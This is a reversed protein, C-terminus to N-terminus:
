DEYLQETAGRVLAYLRTAFDNMFPQDDGKRFGGNQRMKERHLKMREFFVAHLSALRQEPLKEQIRYLQMLATARPLCTGSAWIEIARYFLAYRYNAEDIRNPQKQRWELSQLRAWADCAAVVNEEFKKPSVKGLLATWEEPDPDATSRAVAAPGSAAGVNILVNADGPAQIQGQGQGSLARVQEAVDELRQEVQRLDDKVVMKHEVRQVDDRLAETERAADAMHRGVDKVIFESRVRVRDPIPKGKMRQRAEAVLAAWEPVEEGKDDVFVGVGLPSSWLSWRPPTRGPFERLANAEAETADDPDMAEGRDIEELEAARQFALDQLLVRRLARLCALFPMIRVDFDRGSAIDADRIECARKEVDEIWPFVRRLMSDPVHLRDRDHDTWYLGVSADCGALACLAGPAPGMIYADNMADPKAWGGNQRLESEQAGNMTAKTVSVARRHLLKECLCVRAWSEAGSSQEHLRMGRVTDRLKQVDPPERETKGPCVLDLQWAWMLRTGDVHTEFAARTRKDRITPAHQAAAVREDSQLPRAGQGHFSIFLCEALASIACCRVDRHRLAYRCVPTTSDQSGKLEPMELVFVETGAGLMGEDVLNVKLQARRLSFLEGPRALFAEAALIFWRVRAWKAYDSASTNRAAAMWEHLYHLERNDLSRALADVENFKSKGAGGKSLEKLAAGVERKKASWVAMRSISDRLEEPWCLRWRPDASLRRLEVEAARRADPARRPDMNEMEERRRKYRQADLWAFAEALNVLASRNTKATSVTFKLGDCGETAFRERVFREVRAEDMKYPNKLLGRAYGDDHDEGDGDGAGGGRELWDDFAWSMWRRWTPMYTTLSDPSVPRARQSAAAKAQEILEEFRYEDPVGAARERDGDPVAVRTLKRQQFPRAIAGSM